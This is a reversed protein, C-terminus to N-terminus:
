AGTAATRRRRGELALVGRGGLGGLGLGLGTVGGLGLVRDGVGLVDAGRGLGGTAARQEVQAVIVGVRAVGAGAVLRLGLGLHLGLGGGGLVLAAHSAAGQE